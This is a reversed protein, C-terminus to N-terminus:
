ETFCVDSEPVLTEGQFCAPLNIIDTGTTAPGQTNKSDIIHVSAYGRDVRGGLNIITM